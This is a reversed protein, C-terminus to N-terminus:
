GELGSTETILKHVHYQRILLDTKAAYEYEEADVFKKLSNTLTELINERPVWAKMSGDEFKFLDIRESPTNLNKKIERVIFKHILIENEQIFKNWVAASKSPLVLM